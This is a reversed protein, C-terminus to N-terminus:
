ATQVLNFDIVIDTANVVPIITKNKKKLEVIGYKNLTKLTRSLNSKARGTIEGLETISNPHKENIIKLLDQNEKSLIRAMSIASEFYVKPENKKPVYLGRAIDMTRKRFDESSMIGVNLIKKRM